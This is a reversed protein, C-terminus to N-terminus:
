QRCGRVRRCAEEAAELSSFGHLIALHRDAVQQPNIGNRRCEDYWSQTCRLTALGYTSIEGRAYTEISTVGRIDECSHIPRGGAAIASYKRATEEAWGIVCTVLEEIIVRQSESLPPLFESVRAYEDPHTSAMMRAYKETMLNRGEAKAERLDELWHRRLEQPWSLMQGARTLCFEHPNSQCSARGGQNRVSSFMQWETRIIEYGTDDLGVIDDLIAAINDDAM